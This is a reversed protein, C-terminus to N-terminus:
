SLPENVPRIEGEGEGGDDDDDDGEVVGGDDNDDDGADNDDVEMEIDDDDDDDSYAARNLYRQLKKQYVIRTTNTVPGIHSNFQKLKAYLESDSLNSVDRHDDLSTQLNKSILKKKSIRSSLSSGALEDDNDDGSDNQRNERSLVHERYLNILVDKKSTSTLPIVVDRSRLEKVLQESTLNNLNKVVPM